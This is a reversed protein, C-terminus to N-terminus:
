RFYLCSSLAHLDFIIWFSSFEFINWEWLFFFSGEWFVFIIISWCIVWKGAWIFPLLCKGTKRSSHNFMSFTGVALPPLSCRIMFTLISFVGKALNWMADCGFRRAARCVHFRYFGLVMCTSIRTRELLGRDFYNYIIKWRKWSIEM